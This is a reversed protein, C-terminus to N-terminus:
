PALGDIKFTVAGFHAIAQGDSERLRIDGERQIQKCVEFLERAFVRLLQQRQKCSHLRRPHNHVNHEPQKNNAGARNAGLLVRARSRKADHSRLSSLFQNRERLSFGPLRCVRPCSSIRCSCTARM